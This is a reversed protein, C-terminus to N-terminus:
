LNIIQSNKNRMLKRLTDDLYKSQAYFNNTEITNGNIVFFGYYIYAKIDKRYSINLVFNNGISYEKIWALIQKKTVVDTLKNENIKKDLVDKLDSYSELMKKSLLNLDDVLLLFDNENVNLLYSPNITEQCKEFVQSDFDIIYSKISIDLKMNAIYFFHFRCDETDYIANGKYDGFCVILSHKSIRRAYINVFGKNYLLITEELKYFFEENDSCFHTTIIERKELNKKIYNIRNQLSPDTVHSQLRSLMELDSCTLYQNNELIKELINQVMNDDGSIKSLEDAITVAADRVLSNVPLSMEKTLINKCDAIYSLKDDNNLKIIENSILYPTHYPKHYFSWFYTDAFSSIFLSLKPLLESLINNIEENNYINDDMFQYEIEPDYLDNIHVHKIHAHNGGPVLGWWSYYFVLKGNEISPSLVLTPVEKLHAELDYIKVGVDTINNKWAQQYFRIGKGTSVNWNNTCFKALADELLPFIKINFKSHTSTTLICNLPIVSPKKNESEGLLPLSSNKIVFPPVLLPWSSLSCSYAALEMNTKSSQRIQAIRDQNMSHEIERQLKCMAAFEKRANEIGNIAAKEEYERQLDQFAINQKNGRYSTFAASAVQLAVTGLM